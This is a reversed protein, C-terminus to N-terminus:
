SRVLPRWFQRGGEDRVVHGLRALSDRLAATERGAKRELAVARAALVAEVAPPLGDAGATWPRYVDAYPDTDRWPYGFERLTAALTGRRARPIGRAAPRSEHDLVILTDRDPYIAAIGARALETGGLRLRDPSVSIPILREHLAASAILGAGALLVAQVAFEWPADVRAVVTVAPRLPLPLHLGLAWRAGIPLVGALLLGLVAPGAAILVRDTPSYDLTASTRTM